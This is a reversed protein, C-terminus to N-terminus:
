RRLQGACHLRDLAHKAPLPMVNPASILLLAAAWLGAGAAFSPASAELSMASGSLVLTQGAMFVLFGAALSQNGRSLFHVALLATAVILAIGDVGWALGRLAPSPAFSGALGLLAGVVLCTPAVVSPRETSMLEEPRAHQTSKIVGLSATSFAQEHGCEATFWIAHCPEL